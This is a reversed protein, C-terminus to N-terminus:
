IMCGATSSWVLAGVGGGVVAVFVRCVYVALQLMCHCSSPKEGPLKGVDRKEVPAGSEDTTQLVEFQPGPLQSLVAEAASWGATVAQPM